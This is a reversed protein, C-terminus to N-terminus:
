AAAKEPMHVFVDEMAKEARELSKRDVIVVEGVLERLEATKAEDLV